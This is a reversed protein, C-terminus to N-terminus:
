LTTVGASGTNLQREQILPHLEDSRTSDLELTRIVYPVSLQYSHEVMVEWIRFVEEVSLDTPALTVSEDPRFVPATNPSVADDVLGNLLGATLIPHDEFVRMLWGAVRQQFAPQPGWATALFHLDLPLRPRERRGADDIRGQPRRISGNHYVRYLFLSVGQEMPQEFNSASYVQFNLLPGGFEAQDYNARLLRVLAEMVNAIAPYASM